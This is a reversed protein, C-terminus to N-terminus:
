SLPTQPEIQILFIGTSFNSDAYGSEIETWYFKSLGAFMLCFALNFKRQSIQPFGKM